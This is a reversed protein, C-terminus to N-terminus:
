VELLELAAGLAHISSETIPSAVLIVEDAGAEAMERLGAAIESPGGRLPRVDGEIPREGSARELDDLVVLM